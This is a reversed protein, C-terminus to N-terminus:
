MRLQSTIQVINRAQEWGYELLKTFNQIWEALSDQLLTDSLIANQILSLDAKTWSFRAETFSKGATTIGTYSHSIVNAYEKWDSTFSTPLLNPDYVIASGSVATLASSLCHLAIPSWFTIQNKLDQSDSLKEAVLDWGRLETMALNTASLIGSAILASGLMPSGSSYLSTGLFINFASLICAGAKQLTSWVNSEQARQAAQQLAQINEAMKKSLAESYVKIEDCASQLLSNGISYTEHMLEMILLIPPSFLGITSDKGQGPEISSSLDVTVKKEPIDNFIPHSIPSSNQISTITM